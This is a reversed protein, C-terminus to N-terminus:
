VEYQSYLVNQINHMIWSKVKSKCRKGRPPSSSTILEVRCCNAFTMSSTLSSVCVLAGGCDISVRREAETIVSCEKLQGM